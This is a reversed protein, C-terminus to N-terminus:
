SIEESWVGTLPSGLDSELCLALDKPNWCGEGPCSLVKNNGFPLTLLFLLKSVPIPM